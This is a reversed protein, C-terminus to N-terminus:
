DGWIRTVVFCIITALFPISFLTAAYTLTQM